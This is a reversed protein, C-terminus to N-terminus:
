YLRRKNPRSKHRLHNGCCPCHIGDFNLFESCTRCFKAGDKYWGHGTSVFKIKECTGKCFNVL